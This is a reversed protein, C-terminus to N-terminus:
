VLRKGAISWVLTILTSYLLVSIFIGMHALYESTHSHTLFEMQLLDLGYIFDSLLSVISSTGFYTASGAGFVVVVILAFRKM